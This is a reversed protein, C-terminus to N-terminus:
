IPLMSKIYNHNGYGTLQLEHDELHKIDSENIISSLVTQSKLYNHNGCGILLLLLIIGLITKGWKIKM